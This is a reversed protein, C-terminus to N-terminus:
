SHRMVPGHLAAASFQGEMGHCLLVPVHVAVCGHSHAHACVIAGIKAFIIWLMHTAGAGAALLVVWPAAAHSM